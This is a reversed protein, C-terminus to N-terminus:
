NVFTLLLMTLSYITKTVQLGTNMSLPMISAITLGETKQAMMLMINLMKKESITLDYWRADNYCSQIFEENTIDVLTGMGCFVQMMVFCYLLYIYGAPWSGLMICFLAFAVGIFCTGMKVFVSWYVADRSVELFILYKQHFQLIDKLAALTKSKKELETDYDDDLLDNIERFKCQLIGKFTPIQSIPTLVSMDGSYLGFGGVAIFLAQVANTAWLGGTTYISVWPCYGYVLTEYTGFIFNYIITVSSMGLVLMLNIFACIKMFNTLLLIGKNLYMRYDSDKQEYKEYLAMSEKLLFRYKEQKTLFLIVVFFGQLLTGGALSIVQVLITWDGEQYYGDLMAYTLFVFSVGIVTITFITRVNVRYDDEYIDLGCINACFKTIRVIKYLRESIKQSMIIHQSNSQQVRSFTTPDDNGTNIKQDCVKIMIIILNFVIIMIIIIVAILMMTLERADQYSCFKNSRSKVYNQTLCANGVM